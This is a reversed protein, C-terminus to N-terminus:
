NEGPTRFYTGEVLVLRDVPVGKYCVVYLMGLPIKVVTVMHSVSINATLLVLVVCYWQSSVFM